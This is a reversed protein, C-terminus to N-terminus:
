RFWRLPPWEPRVVVIKMKEDSSGLLRPINIKVIINTWTNYKDDIASVIYPFIAHSAM